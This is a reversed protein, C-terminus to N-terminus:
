SRTRTHSISTTVGEHGIEVVVRTSRLRDFVGFPVHTLRSRNRPDANTAEHRHGGGLERGAKGGTSPRLPAGAPPRNQSDACTLPVPLRSRSDSCQATGHALLSLLALSASGRTHHPHTHDRRREVGLAVELARHLGDPALHVSPKVHTVHDHVAVRRVSRDLDRLAIRGLDDHGLVAAHVLGDLLNVMFGGARRARGEVHERVPGLPGGRRPKLKYLRM